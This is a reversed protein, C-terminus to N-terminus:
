RSGRVAERELSKAMNREGRMWRNHVLPVLKNFARNRLVDVDVDLDVDVAVAAGVADSEVDFDDVEVGL